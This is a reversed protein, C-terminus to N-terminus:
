LGADHRYRRSAAKCAADLNRVPGISAGDPQAGGEQRITRVLVYRGRALVVEYGLAHIFAVRNNRRGTLVIADGITVSGAAAVSGPLPKGALAERENRIGTLTAVLLDIGSANM